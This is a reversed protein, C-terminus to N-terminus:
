QLFNNLNISWAKRIKELFINNAKTTLSLEARGLAFFFIELINKFIKNKELDDNDLKSLFRKYFLHSKNVTVLISNKNLEPTILYPSNRDSYKVKYKMGPISKRRCTKIPMDLSIIRKNRIPELLHDFREAVKESPTRTNQQKIKIFTERVQRNLERGIKEIDPILINKIVETPHIEQKTYTVGFIEDLAPEFEIECRWWDDYNEKRKSGMFFWGYDIERGARLVSIGASKTIGRDNKEENSLRYWEEIPLQSFTVRVTSKFDKNSNEPPHIKYILDNGYKMGGKLNRGEELFLPDFPVVPVNNISISKGSYIKKRFLRGIEFHLENLISQERKHKLRDCKSWRVVTGTNTRIPFTIKKLSLKTPHPIVFDKKEVIEDIDLYSLFVSKPKQWTFVDVRKSHSLSSNPLGMGYKGSAVHSNFRTSGGFQLAIELTKPNMGVGDDIVLVCNDVNDKKFVIDVKNAKAEFSNDVLEAVASSLSKYGSDRTALLFNIENFLNNTKM